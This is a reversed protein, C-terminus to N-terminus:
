QSQPLISRFGTTPYKSDPSRSLRAASRSWFAFDGWSGGRTVRDAGAVPGRPDSQPASSYSGYSDWCWEWVNGVMDYLGYGNPAFYGSPSTHPSGVAFTPHMGRTPSTDYVLIFNTGQYGYNTGSFYNARNHTINDTDSWSFRHDNLGARAAKEWEAETPLRYGQNWNVWTNDLNLQGSRYVTTFTASTYYAPTRGEKESRANCWKVADYWTVKQAPHDHDKGEAGYEFSYGHNTAWQHVEDWRAITVEFKDMYFASVFVSHLPLEGSLGENTSMCNGMTFTGAPILVMGPPESNTNARVRYFMPVSVRITGNSDAAVAALSAWNNTWPGAVSSAWEVSALSGPQLNTCILEGNQSFSSIVPSQGFVSVWVALAFAVLGLKKQITRTKM